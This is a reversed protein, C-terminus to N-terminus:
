GDNLMQLRIEHGWLERRGCRAPLDFAAPLYASEKEKGDGDEDETDKARTRV